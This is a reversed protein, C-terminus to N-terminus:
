PVNITVCSAEPFLVIVKGDVRIFLTNPEAVEVIVKDVAALAFSM